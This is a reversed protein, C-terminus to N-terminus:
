FDISDMSETMSETSEGSGADPLGRPNLLADLALQIKSKKASQPNVHRISQSLYIIESDNSFLENENLNIQQPKQKELLNPKTTQPKLKTMPKESHVKFDIFQTPVVPEVEAISDKSSELEDELEETETAYLIVRSLGISDSSWPNRIAIEILEWERSTPIKSFNQSALFTKTEFKNKSTKADNISRVMSQPCLVQYESDRSNKVRFEIFACGVNEIVIRGITSPESLQITVTAETVGPATEWRGKTLAINQPPHALNASSASVVNFHLPQSM